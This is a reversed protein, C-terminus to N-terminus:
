SAHKISLLDYITHVVQGLQRGGGTRRKGGFSIFFAYFRISKLGETVIQPCNRTFEASM